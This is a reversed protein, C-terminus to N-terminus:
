EEGTACGASWLRLRRQGITDRLTPLVTSKIFDFQGPERLFFTEGVTLETILAERVEDRSAVAHRLDRPDSLGSSAMARRMGAEASERRNPPFVLGAATHLESAIIAFEPHSWTGPNM